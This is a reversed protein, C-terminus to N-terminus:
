NLNALERRAQVLMPLDADANKWFTLITKYQERADETKHEKALVRALELHSVYYMPSIPDVGPNLLILRFDAEASPLNGAALDAHARLWLTQYVYLQYPRTPELEKLADDPKNDALAVSARLMPVWLFDLGTDSNLKAAPSALYRRAPQLDGALAFQLACYPSDAALTVLPKITKQADVFLGYVAQLETEDYILDNALGSQGLQAASARGRELQSVASRLQGATAAARGTEDLSYAVNGHTLGWPGHERVGNEDQRLWAIQFLVSHFVYRTKGANLAAEAIRWADDFRNNRKYAVALREASRLPDIRVAHEAADVAEPYKGMVIYINSLSGWLMENEPYIAVAARSASAAREDDHLVGYYYAIEINFREAETTHERLDFARKYSTASASLDKTYEYNAGLRRWAQAFEPDIAVAQQLLARAGLTDNKDALVLAHSYDRLAELSSTSAQELPVNFSAVDRSPEGLERRLKRTLEDMARFAEDRNSLTTKEAAVTAGTACNAAELTLLYQTGMRVISGSLVVQYNARECVERAVESTMATGSPKRMQALVDAAASPALLHIYPSQELEIRLGSALSDDFVSEQTQNSFQALVVKRLVPKPRNVWWGTGIVGAIATVAAVAFTVGKYHKRLRNLTQRAFEKEVEEEVVLETTTEVTQLIMERPQPVPLFGAPELPVAEVSVTFQYGRGPVTVIWDSGGTRTALAKRLLFIHQSLNSEEVNTGPWVANLLEDRGVVRNPNFALYILVDVTKGKLPVLQEGRKLARARVDLQFAEFKLVVKKEM